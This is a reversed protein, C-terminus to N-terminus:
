DIGVDLITRAIVENGAKNFHVDGQFFYRYIVSESGQEEAFKFFAPFLNYFHQCRTECFERWIKVQLSEVVDYKIQGPWPYVGISLTTGHTQTLTHLTQMEETMKKIAGSVGDRGYHISQSNYTWESKPYNKLYVGEYINQIFPAEANPKPLSATASSSKASANNSQIIKLGDNKSQIPTQTADSLASPVTAKLPVFMGTSQDRDTTINSTLKRVQVWAEATLPLYQSALRRLKRNVSLPYPEGKDVVVSDLHLDYSNAEDFADGIDVFAIVHKFRYGEAYLAKLKALYIAPSYSVVGLNAIKLEPHQEAVMGVFTHEYPLGVGETFSDGIFAIDFSKTATRKQNCRDKFGEASTCMRYSWTGWHGLGDYNPALTHHYIPHRLRFPESPRVLSMIWAGLFIDTLLFLFITVVTPTLLDVVAKKFTWKTSLQKQM